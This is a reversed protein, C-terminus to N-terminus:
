TGAPTSATGSPTARAVIVRALEDSLASLTASLAAVQSAVTSDAATKRITTVGGEVPTRDNSGAYLDWEASLVAEGEKDSDFRNVRLEFRYDFGSSRYGPIVLVRDMGLRSALDQALVRPLMRQMPEAWRNNESLAVTYPTERQVFTPRDLYGAISVPGLAVVMNSAVEPSLLAPSSAPTSALTFFNAPPSSGCGALTAGLVLAALSKSAFSRM